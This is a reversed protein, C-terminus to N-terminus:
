LEDHLPFKAEKISPELNGMELSECAARWRGAWSDNRSRDLVQWNRLWAHEGGYHPMEDDEPPTPKGSALVNAYDDLLAAVGTGRCWVLKFATRAGFQKHCVDAPSGNQCTCWSGGSGRDAVSAEVIYPGLQNMPHMGEVMSEENTNHTREPDMACCDVHNFDEFCHSTPKYVRLGCAKVIEDRVKKWPRNLDVARAREQAAQLRETATGTCGNAQGPCDPHVGFSLLTALIAIM